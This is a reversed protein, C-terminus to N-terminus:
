IKELPRQQRIPAMGDIMGIALFFLASDASRHFGYVGLGATWFLVLMLLPALVLPYKKIGSYVARVSLVVFLLLGLLGTEVLIGLLIQHANWFIPQGQLEPFRALNEPLSLHVELTQRFSNVGFGVLPSKQFIEWAARWIEDRGNLLFDWSPKTITPIIREGGLFAAAGLICAIVLLAPLGQKPTHKLFLLMAVCMTAALSFVAARSQSYWCLLTLAALLLSLLIKRSHPLLPVVGMVIVACLATFLGYRNPHEFYMRLKIGQFLFKYPNEAMIFAWLTTVASAVLCVVPLLLLLIVAKREMSVAAVHGISLCIIWDFTKLGSNGYPTLCWAAAAILPFCLAIRLQTSNLLRQRSEPNLWLHVIAGALAISRGENVHWDVGLSILFISYCVPLCYTRLWIRSATTLPM